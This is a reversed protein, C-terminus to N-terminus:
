LFYFFGLQKHSNELEWFCNPNNIVKDRIIVLFKKEISSRARLFFYRLRYLYIFICLSWLFSLQLNMTILKNNLIFMLSGNYENNNWKSNAWNTLINNTNVNAFYLCTKQNQDNKNPIKKNSVNTALSSSLEIVQKMSELFNVCVVKLISNSGRIEISKLKNIKYDEVNSVAGGHFVWMMQGLLLMKVIIKKM